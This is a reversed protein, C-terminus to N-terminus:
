GSKNIKNDYELVIRVFFLRIKVSCSKSFNEICILFVTLISNGSLEELERVNKRIWIVTELCFKKKRLLFHFCFSSWLTM